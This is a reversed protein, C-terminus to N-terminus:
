GGDGGRRGALGPGARLVVLRSAAPSHHSSCHGKTVFSSHQMDISPFSHSSDYSQGDDPLCSVKTAETMGRDIWGDADSLGDSRHLAAATYQSLTAPPVNFSGPTRSRTHKLPPPPPPPPSQWSPVSLADSGRAGACSNQMGCRDCRADVPEALRQSTCCNALARRVLLVM